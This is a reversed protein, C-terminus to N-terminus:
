NEVKTINQAFTIFDSLTVDTALQYRTEDDDGLLEKLNGSFLSAASTAVPKVYTGETDNLVAKIKEYDEYFYEQLLPIVKNEFVAKLEEVTTINLFFAHGLTHERDYLAEIRQNMIRLCAAVDIGEITGVKKAVVDPKPMMEVFDFRRRLATDMMAISRDATNMTGLLYVNSPVGFAEGSYPLTVTLAEKAGIRKTPEILTILEGFIKSINGRNIEDIVFLFKDEPHEKARDCFAKFVGPKVHYVVKDEIIEARIGEIFDEYGYSQHFTVMSCFFSDPRAKTASDALQEALQTAAETGGETLQWATSDPVRDFFDTELRKASSTSRKTANQLLMTNITASSLKSNKTKAYRLVKPSQDIQKTTMPKMQNDVFALFVVERWTLDAYDSDAPVVQESIGLAQKYRDVSYTKGTGPPGFLIKNWGATMVEGKVNRALYEGFFHDCLEVLLANPEGDDFLNLAEVPYATATQQDTAAENNWFLPRDKGGKRWLVPNITHAQYDKFSVRLNAYWGNGANLCLYPALVSNNGSKPGYWNHASYFHVDIPVGDIILTNYKLQSKVQQFQQHEFGTAGMTTSRDSQDENRYAGVNINAQTIFRKLLYKFQQYRNQEAVPEVVNDVAM